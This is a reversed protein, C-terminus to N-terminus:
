ASEKRALLRSATELEVARERCAAALDVSGKAWGRHSEAALDHDDARARQKAAEKNLWDITTTTM